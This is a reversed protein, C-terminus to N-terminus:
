KKIKNIKLGWAYDCPLSKQLTTPIKVITGKSSRTWELTQGTGLLTVTGGDAPALSKLIIESPIVSQGKDPVFIAYVMDSKKKNTYCINGEKYPAIARTGYIAEANVKMWAGVDKLRQYAVDDWAGDPGPAINLLLNGGKCVIDVLMRILEDSPKYEADHVWSWSGGAIICSEWPYPLEKEPVRNEPTLYNQNKGEVARDVVIIGPQKQRVKEVLEDMRIDQNAITNKLHEDSQKAVWGGDLWLIDMKGYETM